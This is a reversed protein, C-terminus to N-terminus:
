AVEIWDLERGCLAHWNGASVEGLREEAGGPGVLFVNDVITGANDDPAISGGVRVLKILHRGRSLSIRGVIFSNGEGGSIQQPAGVLRGDVSVELTRDVDGTIWLTYTASRPVTVPAEATGPGAFPVAAGGSPNAVVGVLSSHVAAALDAVVNPERTAYRLNVRHASALASLQRVASCKPVSVPQTASGLGLHALPAPGVRRWVEYWRGRYELRYNGPPRSLTPTRQMVILPFQEVSEFAVANTDYEHGYLPTADAVLSLSGHYAFGAGDPHLRRLEFMAYEDFSTLLTPGDGEFRNAIRSLEEYKSTPALGTGHYLLADSGLVGLAIVGIALAGELVGSRRLAGAGIVATLMMVPSLLMLTKADTWETGRTQLIGWIAISALLFLLVPWARARLLSLVGFVAAFVVIGIFVYTETLFRPEVRHSEGLWVGFSQAFLLPRLLNGPDAAAGPNSSQINEALTLTKTISALTPASFVSALVGLAGITAVFVTGVRRFIARSAAILERPSRGHLAGLLAALLAYPLVWAGAALGIGAVAGGAALAFPIAGRLGAKLLVPVCTLLAGMLMLSPLATLEKISGMLVYAYVLAPVAALFGAAAAALRSCGGREAILAMAPAAASVAFAQFPFYLWLLSQGTLSGTAGLLAQGGNPYGSGFYAMMTMGYGPSQALSAYDRGHHLLWDAGMMQIAGTTDLLYGPLTARGAALVPMAFTVFALVLAGLTLRSENARAVLRGIGSRRHALMYGGLALAILVWPTLPAIAGTWTTFQTVVVMGAFGLAPLLAIPLEVGAVREALLGCGFALALLLVPYVIITLFFAM